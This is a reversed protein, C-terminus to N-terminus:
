KTIVLLACATCYKQLFHLFFPGLPNRVFPSYFSALPDWKQFFDFAQFYLTVNCLAMKKLTTAHWCQEKMIVLLAYSTCNWFRKSCLALILTGFAGMKRTKSCLAFKQFYLTVNRPAAMKKEPWLMDVKNRWSSSYHM